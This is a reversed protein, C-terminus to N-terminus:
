VNKGGGLVLKLVAGALFQFVALVSLAVFFRVELVLLYLSLGVAIVEIIITFGSVPNVRLNYATELLYAFGCGVLALSTLTLLVWARANINVFKLIEVMEKVMERAKKERSDKRKKKNSKPIM